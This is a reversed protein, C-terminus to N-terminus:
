HITATTRQRQGVLAWVLTAWVIVPESRCGGASGDSEAEVSDLLGDTDAESVFIQIAAPGLSQHLSAVDDAALARTGLENM